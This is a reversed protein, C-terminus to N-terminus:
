MITKTLKFSFSPTMAMKFSFMHIIKLEYMYTHLTEKSKQLPPPNNDTFCLCLYFSIFFELELKVHLSVICSIFVNHTSPNSYNPLKCFLIKTFKKLKLLCAKFVIWFFYTITLVNVAGGGSVWKCRLM